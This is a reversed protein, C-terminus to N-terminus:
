VHSADLGPSIKVGFDVLEKAPGPDVPRALPDVGVQGRAELGGNDPTDSLLQEGGTRLALNEM